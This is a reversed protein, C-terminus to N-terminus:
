RGTEALRFIAVGPEDCAIAQHSRELHERLGAYHDLWWGSARPVALYEAGAARLTELQTIAADSDAPHHGAWGGDDGQPFHLGRHSNLSLLADDGRSIVLVTAGSPVTDTVADRLLQADREYRPSPRRPYPQWQQGWKEAFRLQNARLIRAYEGSCVLRGFSAEGFHHVLVDEVCRLQYSAERARASYDDDELLGVEYREDLPGLREHTDRRMAVCFM